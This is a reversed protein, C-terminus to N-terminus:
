WGEVAVGHQLLVSCLCFPHPKLKISAVDYDTLQSGTPPLNPIGTALGRYAFIRGHGYTGIM